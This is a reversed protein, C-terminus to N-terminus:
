TAHGGVVTFPQNNILVAQGAAGTASGFHKESYAYSVVVAPATGVRDDDPLILRGAAPTIGLGHFFNGSVLEGHAIEAQGNISVNMSGVERVQAYAFVDSFVADSDRLVALASYPFIGSVSGLNADDEVDGSMSQMVFDMQDQRQAPKAHWNIVVLSSPNSVPLSTLLLSDLFSYIATNAGIGLAMVLLAVLTFSPSKALSRAAYRLDRWTDELWGIRNAEWVRDRIRWPNGLKMYALRRAQESSMGRALNDDIEHELHSELERTLEADEESRQFVQRFFRWLNM